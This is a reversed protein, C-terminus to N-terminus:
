DAGLRALVKAMDTAVMAELMLRKLSKGGTRELRWPRPKYGVRRDRKRRWNRRARGDEKIAQRLGSLTLGCKPATSALFATMSKGVICSQYTLDHCSRCLFVSGRPLYLKACRRRCGPCSFWWRMGGFHLATPSLYVAQKTSCLDLGIKDTSPREIDAGLVYITENRRNAWTITHYKRSGVPLDLYNHQLLWSATLIVCQEVRRKAGYRRGSGYGGM